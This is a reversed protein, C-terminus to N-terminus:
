LMRPIGGGSPTQPAANNRGGIFQNYIMLYRKEEAKEADGAHTLQYLQMATCEPGKNKAAALSM